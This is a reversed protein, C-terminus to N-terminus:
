INGREENSIKKGKKDQIYDDFPNYDERVMKLQPREPKKAANEIKGTGNNKNNENEKKM